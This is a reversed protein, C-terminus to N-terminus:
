HVSKQAEAEELLRKMLERIPEIEGKDILRTVVRSNTILIPRHPSALTNSNGKSTALLDSTVDVSSMETGPLLMIKAAEHGLFKELGDEDTIKRPRREAGAPGSWHTLACTAISLNKGVNEWGADIEHMGVAVILLLFIGEKILKVTKLGFRLDKFIDGGEANVNLMAVLFERRKSASKDLDAKWSMWRKDLETRLQSPRMKQIKETVEIALRNWTVIDMETNLKNAEDDMEDISALIRQDSCDHAPDCDALKFNREHCDDEDTGLTGGIFRSASELWRRSEGVRASAHGQLHIILRVLARALSSPLRSGTVKIVSQSSSDWLAPVTQDPMEINRNVVDHTGSIKWKAMELNYQTWNPIDPLRYPNLCALLHRPKISNAYGSNTDIHSHILSIVTTVDKFCSGVLANIDDELVDANGIVKVRLKKLAALIVEDSSFGCWQRLWSCINDAHKDAATLRQFGDLNTTPVIDQNCLRALHNISIEKKILINGEPLVLAFKKENLKSNGLNRSIWEGLSEMAEDLPSLGQQVGKNKPGNMLGRLVNYNCFATTQQKAQIHEFAGDEREIVFDDWHPIEGQESGISKSHPQDRLLCVVMKAVEKTAILREFLDNQKLRLKKLM